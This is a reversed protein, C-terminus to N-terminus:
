ISLIRKNAETIYESSLEFGLWNRKLRQCVAATTGSGMFPDLVLDGQNTSGKILYEVLAEPFVAVHKSSVRKVESSIDILTSPLAGKPNPSWDKYNDSDQNEETRAHRAKLKYKMREISKQNYETRMEDMHFTFDKQKVFWFIYEIKDGFRHPNPIFKKKNWFLRDYMKFDTQKHVESILDYVYPHRFGNNVKDNINLIFSGTPKLIRYIEKIIPLFWDVYEDPHIGKFDVYQKMDAYPPSTIVLDVSEQDMMKMGDLCNINYIKNTM